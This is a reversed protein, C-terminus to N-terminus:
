HAPASDAGAERKGHAAFAGGKTKGKSSHGSGARGEIAHRIADGLVRGLDEVQTANLSALASGASHGGAGGPSLGAGPTDYTEAAMAEFVSQQCLEVPLGMGVNSSFFYKQVYRRRVSWLPCVKRATNFVKVLRLSAWALGVNALLTAVEEVWVDLEVESNRSLVRELYKNHISTKSMRSYQQLSVMPVAACREGLSGQQFSLWWRQEDVTCLRSMYIIWATAACVYQAGAATPIIVTKPVTEEDATPVAELAGDGGVEEELVLPAELPPTQRTATVSNARLTGRAQLWGFFEVKASRSQGEVAEEFAAEWCPRQEEAPWLEFPDVGDALFFDVLKEIVPQRLKWGQHSEALRAELLRRDGLPEDRDDEAAASPTQTALPAARTSAVMDRLDWSDHQVLRREYKDQM